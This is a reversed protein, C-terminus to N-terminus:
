GQKADRSEPPWFRRVADRDVIDAVRGRRLMIKGLRPFEAIEVRKREGGVLYVLDEQGTNKLHHAVPSSTPFGVFDGPGVAYEGDEIEVTGQGELVYWWEEEHHHLHYINAEKGPPVRIFHVGMRELGTAESLSVGCMASSPNLPHSFREEAARDSVRLLCRHPRKKAMHTM